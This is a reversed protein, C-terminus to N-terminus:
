FVYGLQVLFKTTKHDVPESRVPTSNMTWAYHARAFFDKYSAYYSLGIDQLTKRDFTVDRNVQQYVNGVDYFIGAKHQYQIISPLKTIVETNLLYGNEASQEGDPYVRVGYAGGISLDESGDLNKNNLAKQMLASTKFTIDNTLGIENSVYLDVKNYRGNDIKDEKSVKGMTLNLNSMLLGPFSEALLYNKEFELGLVVSDITKDEYKIDGLYDNYDKHYYKAKTYLSHERNLILPYKLGIEYIDSKGHAELDKYEKILDYSTRTYSVDGVLGYSNLPLEYAVRIDRLNEGESLLGSVTFKDGLGLLSNVNILSQVRHKGTYRSGYNDGVIYGDVRNKAVTDIEISSTGVVDGVVVSVNEVQLGNRQAMLYITRELDKLYVVDNEKLNDGMTNLVSDNVLSSNKIKIQDYKGEFITINLVNDNKSLDQSTLFARAVFYSKERYIKTVIALVEQIQNFTLEKNKYEKIANNLEESSIQLNNSFTFDKILVKNNSNEKKLVESQNIGQIKINEQKKTPIIPAVLQREITGSNINPVQQSGLLVTAGLLSISIVRKM